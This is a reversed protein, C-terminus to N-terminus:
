NEIRWQKGFIGGVGLVWGAATRYGQVAFIDAETIQPTPVPLWFCLIGFSLHPDIMFLGIVLTAMSAVFVLGPREIRVSWFLVNAVAFAALGAVLPLSSFAGLLASTHRALTNAVTAEPLLGIMVGYLVTMTVPISLWAVAIAPIGFALWKAGLIQWRPVPRDLLYALEGKRRADAMAIVTVATVAWLGILFIYTFQIMGVVVLARPLNTLTLAFDVDAQQLIPVIIAGILAPVLFLAGYVLWHWRSAQWEAQVLPRLFRTM